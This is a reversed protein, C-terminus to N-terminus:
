SIVVRFFAFWFFAAGHIINHAGHGDAKKADKDASMGSALCSHHRAYMKCANCKMNYIEVDRARACVCLFRGLHHRCCGCSSAKVFLKHLIATKGLYSSEGALRECIRCFTRFLNDDSDPRYNPDAADSLLTDAGDAVAALQVDHSYPM